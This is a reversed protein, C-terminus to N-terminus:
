GKVVPLKGSRWAAVGGRLCYVEGFGQGAIYSAAKHSQQGAACTVIIPQDKHKQLRELSNEVTERPINIANIIHGDLYTGKDRIDVVVADQRNILATAQEPSINKVPSSKIKLENLILLIIIVVFAAVLFWNEVIFHTFKDM